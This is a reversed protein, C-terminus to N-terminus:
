AARMSTSQARRLHCAFFANFVDLHSIRQREFLALPSFPQRTSRHNQAGCARNESRENLIVVRPAPTKIRLTTRGQAVWARRPRAVTVKM